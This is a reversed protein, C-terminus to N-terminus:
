NTDLLEFTPNLSFDYFLQRKRGKRKVEKTRRIFNVQPLYSRSSHNVSKKAYIVRPILKFSQPYLFTGILKRKTTNEMNEDNYNIISSFLNGMADITGRIIKSRNLNTNM